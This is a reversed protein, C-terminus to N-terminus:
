GRQQEGQRRCRMDWPCLMRVRGTVECRRKDRGMWVLALGSQTVEEKAEGLGLRVIGDIERGVIGGLGQM